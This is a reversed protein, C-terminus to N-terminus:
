GDIEFQASAREARIPAIREAIVAQHAPHDRYAVYGAVDAFDAVVVYHFNGDNVGLDGGFTYRVISPIASPLAALGEAVAAKHEETADDTWRFMAIHRVMSPCRLLAEVM